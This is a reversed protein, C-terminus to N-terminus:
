FDAKVGYAEGVVRLESVVADSLEIGQEYSIREKEAEIEGPIYVRSVGPAPPCNKFEELMDDVRDMFSDLPLFKSPDLVM